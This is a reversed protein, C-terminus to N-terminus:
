SLPQATPGPYGCTLSKYDAWRLAADLRHENQLKKIHKIRTYRPGTFDEYTL